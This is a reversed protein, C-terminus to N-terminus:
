IDIYLGSRKEILDYVQGIRGPDSLLLAYLSSRGPRMETSIMGLRELERLTREVWKVTCGAEEALRAVSVWTQPHDNVDRTLSHYRLLGYIVGYMRPYRKLEYPTKVKPISAWVREKAALGGDEAPIAERLFNPLDENKHDPGLFAKVEEDTVKLDRAGEVDFRSFREEIRRMSDAWEKSVEGGPPYDWADSSGTDPKKRHRPEHGKLMYLAEAKNRNGCGDLPKIM